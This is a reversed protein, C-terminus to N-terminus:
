FLYDVDNHEQLEKYIADREEESVVECQANYSQFKGGKSSKSFKCIHEKDGMVAKIAEQVKQKDKGIITFKWQTPYKIDPKEQTKNDLIM